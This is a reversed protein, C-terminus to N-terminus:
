SKMAKECFEVRSPGGDIDAKMFKLVDKLCCYGCKSCRWCDCDGILLSGKVDRPVCGSKELRGVIPRSLFSLIGDVSWSFSLSTMLWVLRHTNNLQFNTYIAFIWLCFDEAWELSYHKPMLLTKTARAIVVFLFISDKHRVNKKKRVGHPESLRWCACAIIHEHWSVFHWKMANESRM